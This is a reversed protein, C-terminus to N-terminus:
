NDGILAQFVNYLVKQQEEHTKHLQPLHRFVVTMNKGINYEAPATNSM